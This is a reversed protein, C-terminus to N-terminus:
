EKRQGSSSPASRRTNADQDAPLATVVHNAITKGFRWQGDRWIIRRVDLRDRELQVALRGSFPLFSGTNIITRAHRTWIGSYHTHGVVVFRAQPRFSRAIHDALGPTEIWFQLIRLARWPPWGERLAMALGAMRGGPRKPEHMELALSAWKVAILKQEFDTHAEEGMQQLIRSHEPGIIKAEHSWPAIDHFLVDGHTVLVAGECLDLHSASSVVPDHNGNLFIPRAGEHQCVRAIHALQEQAKDRNYVWLMEVTDGNFVVTATQRFLPALHAPDKIYSANHGVHLDSIVTVPYEVKLVM